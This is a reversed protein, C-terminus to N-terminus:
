KPGLLDLARDLKSDIRRWRLQESRLETEVQEKLHHARLEEIRNLYRIGEEIRAIQAKANDRSNLLLQAEFYSPKANLLRDDVTIKELLMGAVVYLEAATCNEDPIFKPPIRSPSVESFFLLEGGFCRTLHKELSSGIAVQQVALTAILVLLVTFTSGTQM